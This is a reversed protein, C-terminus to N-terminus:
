CILNIIYISNYIIDNIIILHYIFYSLKTMKTFDLYNILKVVNLYVIMEIFDFYFM